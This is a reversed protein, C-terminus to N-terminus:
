EEEDDEEDDEEDIVIEFEDSPEFSSDDMPSM